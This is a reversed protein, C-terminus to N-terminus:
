SGPMLLGAHDEPVAAYMSGSCPVPVGPRCALAARTPTQTTARRSTVTFPRRPDRGHEVAPPPEHARFGVEVAPVSICRSSELHQNRATSSSRCLARRRCQRLASRTAALWRRAVRRGRGVRWSLGLSTARPTYAVTAASEIRTATTNPPRNISRGALGGRDGAATTRSESSGGASCAKLGLPMSRSKAM